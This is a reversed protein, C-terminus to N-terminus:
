LFDSHWFAMMFSFQYKRWPLAHVNNGHSYLPISLILCHTHVGLPHNIWQISHSHTPIWIYFHIHAHTNHLRFIHATHCQRKKDRKSRVYTHMFLNHDLRLHSINDGNGMKGGYMIIICEISSLSQRSFEYYPLNRASQSRYGNQKESEFVCVWLCVLEDIYLHYMLTLHHLQRHLIKHARESARRRWLHAPMKVANTLYVCVFLIGDPSWAWGRNGAKKKRQQNKSISMVCVYLRLGCM